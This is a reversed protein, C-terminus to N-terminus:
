PSHKTFGLHHLPQFDGFKQIASAMGDDRLKAWALNKLNLKKFDM